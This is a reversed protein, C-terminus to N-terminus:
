GKLFHPALLKTMEFDVFNECSFLKQLKADCIIKGKDLPDQWFGDYVTLNNCGFVNKLMQIM